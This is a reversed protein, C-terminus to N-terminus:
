KTKKDSNRKREALKERRVKGSDQEPQLGKMVVSFILGLIAIVAFVYAFQTFKSM